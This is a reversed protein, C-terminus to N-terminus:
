RKKSYYEFEQTYCAKDTKFIGKDFAQKHLEPLQKFRKMRRRDIKKFTMFDDTGRLMMVVEVNDCNDSLTLTPLEYGVYGLTIKKISIPIDIKFFGDLDTKGVKITDNIMISIGILTEFREDIIRGKITKTQANLYTSISILILITLLKKM